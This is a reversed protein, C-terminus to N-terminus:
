TPSGTLQTHCPCECGSATCSRHLRGLCSPGLLLRRARRALTRAEQRTIRDTKPPQATEAYGCHDCSRYVTDGDGPTEALTKHCRPCRNM